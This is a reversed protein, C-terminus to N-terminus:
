VIVRTALDSLFVILGVIVAIVASAPKRLGCAECLWLALAGALIGFLLNLLFEM